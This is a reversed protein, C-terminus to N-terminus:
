YLDLRFRSLCFQEVADWVIQMDQIVTGGSVGIGAVLKGNIRCPFGGGIGTINPNNQALGYLSKGPQLLANLKDTPMEMAVASYAKQFALPQSVVLSNPMSYYFRPAGKEDVISLVIPVSFQKAQELIKQALFMMEAFGFVPEPSSLTLHSQCAMISEEIWKDLLATQM